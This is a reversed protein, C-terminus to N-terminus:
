LVGGVVDGVDDGFELGLALLDDLANAARVRLDLLTGVRDLVDDGGECLDALPDFLGVLADLLDGVGDLRLRV